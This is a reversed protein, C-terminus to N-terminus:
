NQMFLNIKLQDIYYLNNEEGQDTLNIKRGGTHLTQLSRLRRIEHLGADTIKACYLLNLGKLSTVNCLHKFGDDSVPCNSVDINTLSPLTSVHYAGVSSLKRCHNLNLTHLAPLQALPAFGSDSVHNCRALSVKELATLQALHAFGADTIVNVDFQLALSKLTAINALDKLIEDDIRLGRLTLENLRLMCSVNKFKFEKMLVSKPFSLDLKRLSPLATLQEFVNDTVRACRVLKLEQLKKAHIDTLENNSVLCKDVYVRKLDPLMNLRQWGNHVRKCRSLSIERLWTLTTCIMDLGEDDIVGNVELSLLNAPDCRDLMSKLNVRVADWAFPRGSLDRRGCIRLTSTYKMNNLNRQKFSEDAISAWTVHVVRWITRNVSEQFSKSVQALNLLDSFDCFNYILLLGDFPLNSINSLSM